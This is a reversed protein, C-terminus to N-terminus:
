DPIAAILAASDILPKALFSAILNGKRPFNPLRGYHSFKETSTERGGSRFIAVLQLPHSRSSSSLPPRFASYSFHAPLLNENAGEKTPPPSTTGGVRLKKELREGIPNDSLYAVCRMTAILGNHLREYISANRGAM